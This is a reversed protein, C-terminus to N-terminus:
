MSVDSALDIDELVLSWQAIEKEHHEQARRELGSVKDKHEGSLMQKVLGHRKNMREAGDMGRGEGYTSVFAADVLKTNELMFQQIASRKRPKPNSSEHIRQIIQSWNGEARSVYNQSQNAFWHKVRQCLM